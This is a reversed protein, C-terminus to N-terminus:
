TPVSRDNWWCTTLPNNRTTTTVAWVITPRRSCDHGSRHADCDDARALPPPAFVCPDEGCSGIDFETRDDPPRGVLCLPAGVLERRRGIEVEVLHEVLLCGIEHRQAQRVFAVVVGCSADDLGAKRQEHLLREDEVQLLGVIEEGLRSPPLQEERDVEVVAVCPGHLHGVIRDRGSCEPRDRERCPTEAALGARTGVGVGVQDLGLAVAEVHELVQAARDRATLAWM